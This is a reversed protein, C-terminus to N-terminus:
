GNTDLKVNDIVLENRIISATGYNNTPSNNQVINFNSTVFRCTEFSKDTIKIEQCHLLDIQHLKM